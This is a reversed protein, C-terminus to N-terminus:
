ASRSVFKVWPDWGSVRSNLRTRPWSATPMAMCRGCRNSSDLLDADSRIDSGAPGFLIGSALNTMLSVIYQRERIPPAVGDEAALLGAQELAALYLDVWAQEDGALALLSGPREDSDLISQRLDRAQQSQFSVFEERTM